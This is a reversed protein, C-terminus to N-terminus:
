WSSYFSATDLYFWTWFLWSECSTIWWKTVLASVFVSVRYVKFIGDCIIKFAPRFLCLNAGFTGSFSAWSDAFTCQWFSLVRGDSPCPFLYFISTWFYSFTWQWISLVRGDSPRLFLHSFGAFIQYYGGGLLMSIWHFATKLMVHRAKRIHAFSFGTEYAFLILILLLPSM